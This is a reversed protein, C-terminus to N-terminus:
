LIEKRWFPLTTKTTENESVKILTFATSVEETEAKLILYLPIDGDLFANKARKNDISINNIERFVRPPLNEALFEADLTFTHKEVLKIKYGNSEETETLNNETLYETVISQIEEKRTKLEKLIENIAKYEDILGVHFDSM